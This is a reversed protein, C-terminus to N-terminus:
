ATDAMDREAYSATSARGQECGINLAEYFIFNKTKSPVTHSLATKSGCLQHLLQLADGATRRRGCCIVVIVAVAAGGADGGVGKGACGAARGMETLARRWAGRGEDTWAWAPRM